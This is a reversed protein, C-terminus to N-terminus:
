RASRITSLLYDISMDLDKIEAQEAKTLLKEKESESKELILHEREQKECKLNKNLEKIEKTLKDASM